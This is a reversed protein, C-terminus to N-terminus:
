QWGPVGGCLSTKTPLVRHVLLRRLGSGRHRAKSAQQRSGCAWPIRHVWTSASDLARRAAGDSEHEMAGTCEGPRRASAGVVEQQPSRCPSHPARRSNAHELSGRLVSPKPPIDDCRAGRRTTRSPARVLVRGAREVGSRARGTALYAGEDADAHGPPPARKRHSGWDTRHSFPTMCTAYQSGQRPATETRALSSPSQKM